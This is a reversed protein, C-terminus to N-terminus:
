LIYFEVGAVNTISLQSDKVLDELNKKARNDFLAIIDDKTLPRKDITNLIEQRTYYKQNNITGKSCINVSCRFYKAIEYLRSKEVGKVDYSPPRDITGLDVRHPNIENIITAIKKVEENSDNINKVFLVELVLEGRYISKFEKISKIIYEISISKDARDIKKFIKPSVADLSLKVIDLKLLSTQIKSQNITSSNSLILSKANKKHLNIFDIIEDIYPYLTPEGNATLTIVDLNDHLKLADLLEQKISDLDSIDSQANIVKSPKLECYLCDFNCQKINSSLDVGLSLGFRRSFIPGFIHSM